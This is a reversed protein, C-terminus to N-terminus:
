LRHQSMDQQVIINLHGITTPARFIHPKPPGRQRIGLGIHQGPLSNSPTGATVPTGNNVKIEGNYYTIKRLWTLSFRRTRRPGVVVLIQLHSDRIIM